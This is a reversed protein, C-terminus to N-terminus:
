RAPAPASASAAAATPIRGPLLSVFLTTSASIGAMILLLNTFGAAKVTPGLLYVALASVGFSVALRMGAVRSRMRDDVYQVIMADIFPIAGFVFVMFALVIAYFVWGQANAALLFLPVQAAVIPLYVAKLPYRDILRGVVIQAFSAVTYVLALLLGLKAPDEVLGRLREALLQNNGNTTFNFIMSGSVAALTMVFFIRMMISAPLDVSRRPKRAPAMEERPVVLAFLVGCTISLLAPVAFAMRWGVRQVLFGTLVAAVAIGLNGALGNLATAFILLFLHDMAHGVNLLLATPSTNSMPPQDGTIAVTRAQGLHGSRAHPPDPAPHDERPVGQAEDARAQSLPEQSLDAERLAYRLTRDPPGEDLQGVPRAGPPRPPGRHRGGRGRLDVGGRLGPAGRHAGQLRHRVLPRRLHRHPHVGRPLSLLDGHQARGRVHQQRACPGPEPDRLDRQRHGSASLVRPLGGGGRQPGPGTRERPLLGRQGDHHRAPRDRHRSGALVVTIQARVERGVLRLRRPPVDLARGPLAAFSQLAAPDGPRAPQHRLRRQLLPGELRSAPGQGPGHRLRQVGERDQRAGRDGRGPHRDRVGARLDRPRSRAGRRQLGAARGGPLRHAPGAPRPEVAVLRGEGPPLPSRPQDPHGQAQPHRPRHPHARGRHLAQDHRTEKNASCRKWSCRTSITSWSGGTM